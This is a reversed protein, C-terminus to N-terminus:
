YTGGKQRRRWWLYPKQTDTVKLLLIDSIRLGRNIGVVFLMYNRYNWVFLYKKIERIYESDRIPQVFNM